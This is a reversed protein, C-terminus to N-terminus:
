EVVFEEDWFEVVASAEEESVGNNVLRWLAEQKNRFMAWERLSPFLDTTTAAADESMPPASTCYPLLETVAKPISPKHIISQAGDIFRDIIQPFSTPSLVPLIPISINSTLLLTQLHSFGELGSIAHQQHTHRSTVTGVDYSEPSPFHSSYLLFIVASHRGGTLSVFQRLRIRSHDTNSCTLNSVTFILFRAKRTADQKTTSM